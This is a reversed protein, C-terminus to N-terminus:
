KPEKLPGPSKPGIVPMGPGPSDAKSPDLWRSGFAGSGFAGSGFAGSGFARSGSAGSGPMSAAGSAGSPPEAPPKPPEPPPKPPEPPPEGTTSSRPPLPILIVGKDEDFMNKSM